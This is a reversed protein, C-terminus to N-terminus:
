GTLSESIGYIGAVYQPDSFIANMADIRAQPFCQSPDGWQCVANYSRVTFQNPRDPDPALSYRDIRANVIAPSMFFPVPASDYLLTAAKDPFVYNYNDVLDLTYTWHDAWFGNQAYQAAPVQRAVKLVSSLFEVPDQTITIQQSAINQFLTGIRFAATLLAIMKVGSQTQDPPIGFNPVLAAADDATLVFNTSAVTLPNYGDAQVFSLFMHVNFDGVQPVHMVDNRRNQNVDRFNGPGQSYYTTDIQFWNYDRELDGHIRSFTHYIKPTVPDGLPVPVGGRLVNDLFDQQVYRDFVPSSTKTVVYSTINQVLDSALDAQISIFDKSLIIPTVTSVFTPLDPAHGYVSTITVSKGPALKFTSGAFACPTRSTTTQQRNMFEKFDFKGWSPDFYISPDTLTSDTGFVIAPDVIFPLLDATTYEGKETEVFSVVFHGDVVIQVQATDATGQSVHYFPQTKNNGAMNYVNM